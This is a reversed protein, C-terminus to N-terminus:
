KSLFAMAELIHNPVANKKTEAEAIMEPEEKAFYSEKIINAGKTFDEASAYQKSELLAKFKEVELETMGESVQHFAIQRKAQDLQEALKTMKAEQEKAAEKLAAIEDRQADMLDIQNEPVNFNHELFLDRLGSIFSEMLEVKISTQLAVKNKETWENVVYTLYADAQSELEAEKESIKADFEEQLKTQIGEARKSTEFNVASEFLTAIKDKSEESLETGKFMAVLHESVDEEEDDEMDEEDDDDEEDLEAIRQQKEAESVSSKVNEFEESISDLEAIRKRIESESVGLEDELEELEEEMLAELEKLRKLKEEETINM